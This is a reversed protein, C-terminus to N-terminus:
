RHTAQKIDWARVWEERPSVADARPEPEPDGKGCVPCVHADCYHEHLMQHNIEDWEEQSVYVTGEDESDVPEADFYWCPGKPDPDWAHGDCRSGSPCQCTDTM